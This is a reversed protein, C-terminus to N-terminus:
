PPSVDPVRRAPRLLLTAGLRDTLALGGPHFSDGLLLKAWESQYARACCTKVELPDASTLAVADSTTEMAMESSGPRARARTPGRGRRFPGHGRRAIDTTGMEM